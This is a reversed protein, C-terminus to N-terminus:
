VHVLWDNSITVYVEDASNGYGIIRIVDDTGSPQAVQIAGATTSAYVPAGITLTPFLSDARIKGFLLITTTGAASAALVVFGMKVPGSTAEANADTLWWRSDAAKFYVLNGFALTEGAVGTETIGCYKGDASLAADLVVSTNETLSITTASINGTVILNPTTISISDDASISMTGDEIIGIDVAGGGITATLNQGTFTIDGFASLVISASVGTDNSALYVSGAESYINIDNSTYLTFQSLANLAMNYNYSAGNIATNSTLAGGLKIDDGSETLGNSATTLIGPVDSHVQSAANWYKLVAGITDYTVFNSIAM